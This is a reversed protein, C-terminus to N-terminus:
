QKSRMAINYIALLTSAPLKKLDNEYNREKELGKFRKIEEDALIESLGRIALEKFLSCEKIESLSITLSGYEKIIEKTRSKYKTM